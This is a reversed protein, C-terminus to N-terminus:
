KAPKSGNSSVASFAVADKLRRSDSFYPCAHVPAVLVHASHGRSSNKSAPM